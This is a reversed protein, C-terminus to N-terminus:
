SLCHIVEPFHVRLGTGRGNNGSAKLYVNCVPLVAKGMKILTKRKNLTHLLNNLMKDSSLYVIITGMLMKSIGLNLNYLSELTFLGYMYLLISRMRFGAHNLSSERKPLSLMSFKDEAARLLHRKKSYVDKKDM